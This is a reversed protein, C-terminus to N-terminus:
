KDKKILEEIKIVSEQYIELDDGDTNILTTYYNQNEESWYIIYKGPEKYLLKDKQKPKFFWEFINKM